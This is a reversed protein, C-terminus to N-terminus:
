ELSQGKVLYMSGLSYGDYDYLMGIKDTWIFFIIEEGNATNVTSFYYFDDEKMFDNFERVLYVVQGNDNTLTINTADNSFRFLATEDVVEFVEFGDNNYVAHHTEHTSIDTDSFSLLPDSDQQTYTKVPLVLIIIGTIITLNLKKM